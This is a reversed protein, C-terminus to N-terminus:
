KIWITKINTFERIGLASLERGYGSNKVGGFPLRPDSFSPSNIFTLGSEMNRAMSEATAMDDSWISGSLGYNSANAIGLAHAPESAKLVIAVPGFLEENYAPMNSTVDSLITPAYYYGPCDLQYGGTIITAGLAVSDMVQQHLKDLLDQRAMPALSAEKEMPSSIKGETPFKEEVAQKFKQVFEDFLFADIIFRKSAICTQGMNVFRGTVAGAVAQKINANDLVIFADSGGLELVAKKLESGAISAVSRDAKESGTLSVAQVIPNRIVAEVQSSGIMLTTFINDPFGSKRFVEEIALACQPVNSAHKMIAINGATVTPIAFRLAQWFPYNWPMVGLVVGMPQYSIFSNSAETEIVEDALHIQANEAYYDCLVACKEIEAMSETFLKGMELTILEALLEQDDRLVDAMRKLLLCRDALPTLKSWDEFEYSAQLIVESLTEDDWTEFEAFQEGSQPNVSFMTMTM